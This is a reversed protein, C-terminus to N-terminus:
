IKAYQCDFVSEATCKIQMDLHPDETMEAFSSCCPLYSDEDRNLKFKHGIMLKSELNFIGTYAQEQFTDATKFGFGTYQDSSSSIRFASTRNELIHEDVSGPTVTAFISANKYIGGYKVTKSLTKGLYNTFIKDQSNEYVNRSRIGLGRYYLDDAHYLVTPFSENIYAIYKTSNETGTEEIHIDGVQSVVSVKNSDILKGEKTYGTEKFSLGSFGSLSVYKSSNGTGTCQGDSIFALPNTYSSRGWFSSMNSDNVFVNIGYGVRADLIPTLSMFFLLFAILFSIACQLRRSERRSTILGEM